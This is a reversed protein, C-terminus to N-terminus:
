DRVRLTQRVTGEIARAELVADMARAPTWEFDYTEGPGIWRLRAPRPALATAPLAAGDKALPRWTVPTAGVRLEVLEPAEPLVNLLRIRYRTGAHLMRPAPTRSGNLAPRVSDSAVGGFVFLLDTAPDWREGPELVLLPGYMGARLQAGEDMHTHYMYTGARPPTLTVVFSDGPVVLPAVRAGTRGWGAVGDYVSEVELGHWHVTTPEPLRNVVTIAATEGRTLVLTPGPVEVSDLSPEAGRQLVFGRPATRAEGPGRQALLRLRRAMAPTRAAAPTGPAAAAPEHSTIGLV